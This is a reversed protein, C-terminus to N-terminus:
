QCFCDSLWPCVSLRNYAAYVVAVTRLNTGDKLAMDSM